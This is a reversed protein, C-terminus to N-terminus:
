QEDAASFKRILDIAANIGWLRVIWVIESWEAGRELATLALLAAPAFFLATNKLWKRWDTNAARTQINM